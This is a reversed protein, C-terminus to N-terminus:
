TRTPHNQCKTDSTHWLFRVIITPLCLQAIIDTSIITRRDDAKCFYMSSWLRSWRIEILLLMPKNLFQSLNFNAFTTLTHVSFCFYRFGDVHVHEQEVIYQQQGSDFLCRALYCKRHSRLMEFMGAHMDTKTPEQMKKSTIIVFKLEQLVTRALRQL